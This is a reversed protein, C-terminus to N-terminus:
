QQAGADAQMPSKARVFHMNKIGVAGSELSHFGAGKLLDLIETLDVHGHQHRFHAALGRRRSLSKAFDVVLVRGGPKVVRRLERAFERRAARGLHHLMITSLALDFSSDAFPLTQAAASEFRVEAGARTAKTRARALMEPSPDVGVVAGSLGVTEKALIALTGTGCGVDCVSEGARLGSLEILRRRLGRERGRLAFWVIADYLVPSHLVAGVRRPMMNETTM